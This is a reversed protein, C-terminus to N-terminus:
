HQSIVGIYERSHLICKGLLDNSKNRQVLHLLILSNSEAMLVLKLKPM